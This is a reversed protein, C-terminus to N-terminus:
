SVLNGWKIDTTFRSLFFWYGSPIWKIIEYFYKQESNRTINCIHHQCPLPSGSPFGPSDIESQVQPELAMSYLELHSTVSISQCLMYSYHWSSKRFLIPLRNRFNQMCILHLPMLIMNSVVVSAWVYFPSVINRRFRILSKM